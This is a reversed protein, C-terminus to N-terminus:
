RKVAIIKGYGVDGSAANKGQGKGGTPTVEPVIMKSANDFDELMKQVYSVGDVLLGETELDKDKKLLERRHKELEKQRSENIIWERPFQPVKKFTHHKTSIPIDEMTDTTDKAERVLSAFVDGLYRKNQAQTGYSECSMKVIDREPNWRVGAIKRLKLRQSDTLDSIDSPSFELVVKNEAPHQEGMYTTYRFRLPTDTTPPNFPKRLNYLLPMEWAALRAYHRLERHLELEGHGLSTLDDEEDPLMGEQEWPESEGMNMFTQKLRKPKEPADLKKMNYSSNFVNEWFKNTVEEGTPDYTNPSDEENLFMQTFEDEERDEDGESVEETEIDALDKKVYTEIKAYEEASLRSSRRLDPFIDDLKPDKHSTITTSFESVRRLVHRKAIFRLRFGAVKYCYNRLAVAM